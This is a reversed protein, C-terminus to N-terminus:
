PARVENLRVVNASTENGFPVEAVPAGPKPQETKMPWELLRVAQDRAGLTWLRPKGLDPHPQVSAIIREIVAERQMNHDCKPGIIVQRRLAECFQRMLAPTATEFAVALEALSKKPLVFPSLYRALIREREPQGPAELRVHIEFRRWIAEDIQDGHNTAAILYHRPLEEMRQLLIDVTQNHSQDAHQTVSRRKGALAEFEDLFLVLPEEEACVLDFMEGLNRQDWGVWRDIIRDPRVSLMRLGLRAALHHALTTKGVGPPGDFLSKRRPQLNVWALDDAASIEILWEALATRVARALIPEVADKPEHLTGYDTLKPEQRKLGLRM